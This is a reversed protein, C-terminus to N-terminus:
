DFAHFAEGIGDTLRILADLQGVLWDDVALDTQVIAHDRRGFLRSPTPLHREPLVEQAFRALRAVIAPATHEEDFCRAKLAAYAAHAGGGVEVRRVAVDFYRRYHSCVVGAGWAAVREATFMDEILGDQAQRWRTEALFSSDLGYYPRGISRFFWDLRWPEAVFLTHDVLLRAVGPLPRLLIQGLIVRNSPTLIRSLGVVVLISRGHIHRLPAHRFDEWVMHECQSATQPPRYDRHCVCLAGTGVDLRVDGTDCALTIM